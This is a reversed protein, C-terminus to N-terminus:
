WHEASPGTAGKLLDQAQGDHPSFFPGIVCFLVIAIFLFFSVVALRNRQLRHWADVWLSSGKELEEVTPQSAIREEAGAVMKATRTNM